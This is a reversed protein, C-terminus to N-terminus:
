KRREISAVRGNEFVVRMAEEGRFGDDSVTISGGTATGGAYSGVGVGFSFRPGRKFYTWVESTGAETTRLSKGDPEDLAVRVMEETFWVDVEGARIKQQVEASWINFVADNSQIRSDPTSCAALLLTLGALIPANKMNFKAKSARLM